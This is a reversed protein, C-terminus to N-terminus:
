KRNEQMRSSQGWRDRHGMLICRCCSEPVGAVMHHSVESSGRSDKPVSMDPSALMKYTRSQQAGMCLPTVRTMPPAAYLSIRSWGVIVAAVGM